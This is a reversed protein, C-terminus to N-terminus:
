PQYIYKGNYKCQYYYYTGNEKFSFGMYSDKKIGTPIIIKGNRNIKLGTATTKM